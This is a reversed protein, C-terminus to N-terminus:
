YAKTAFFTVVQDANCLAFTTRTRFRRALVKTGDNDLKLWYRGVILREELQMEESIYIAPALWTISGFTEKDAVIKESFIDSKKVM